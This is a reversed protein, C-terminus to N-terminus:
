RGIKERLTREDFSITNFKNSTFQRDGKLFVFDKIISLNVGGFPLQFPNLDLKKIKAVNEFESLTLSIGRVGDYAKVWAKQAEVWDVDGKAEIGSIKHISHSGYSSEASEVLSGTIHIGLKELDLVFKAYRAQLKLRRKAYASYFAKPKKSLRFLAKKRNKSVQLTGIHNRFVRRQFRELFIHIADTQPVHYPNGLNNINYGGIHTFLDLSPRLRELDTETRRLIDYALKLNVPKKATIGRITILRDRVGGAHQIDKHTVTVKKGVSVGCKESLEQCCDGWIGLYKNHWRGYLRAFLGPKREFIRKIQNAAVRTTIWMEGYLPRAPRYEIKPGRKKM